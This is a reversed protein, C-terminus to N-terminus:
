KQVFKLISLRLASIVKRRIRPIFDSVIPGNSRVVHSRLIKDIQAELVWLRKVMPSTLLPADASVTRPANSVCQVVHALQTEYQQLSFSQVRALGRNQLTTRVEDNKLAAVVQSALADADGPCFLLGADGITEPIATCDSGVVPVGSAMSELVPVCFGEHLSATVFLDALRYYDPLNDVRGTFIVDDVVGLEQALAKAKAVEARYHPASRDDGVLLLKVEPVERQVQALARVLLGIRKNGAMRGVFLLVRHDVLGHQRALAPDAPGPSFQELPVPLPLVRTREAPYGARQILEQALYTSDALALDAHHVLIIGETGRILADRGKRHNWLEPPTVGHYNFLVTGRNIGGISEMLKHRSPYHYVYLDSCNFHPHFGGILEGVSVIRVLPAIDSSIGEPPHQVYIQVEDGRLRFFRAQQIIVSGIADQAVINLNLLSVYMIIATSDRPELLGAFEDAEPLHHM